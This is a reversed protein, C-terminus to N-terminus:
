ALALDDFILCMFCVEYEILDNIPPNRDRSLLKRAAQVAGLQKAPEFNGSEQSLLFNFASDGERNCLDSEEM